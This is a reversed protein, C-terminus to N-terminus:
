MVLSRVRKSSRLQPRCHPIGLVLGVCPCGQWNGTQLIEVHFFLPQSKLTLSYNPRLPEATWHFLDQNYIGSCIQDYSICALFFSM